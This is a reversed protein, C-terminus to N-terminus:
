HLSPVTKQETTTKLSDTCQGNQLMYSTSVDRVSGGCPHYHVHIQCSASFLATSPTPRGTARIRHGGGGGGGVGVLRHPPAPALQCAAPIYIYGWEDLLATQTSWGPQNSLFQSQNVQFLNAPQVAGGAGGGGRPKLNGPGLVWRLVEGAMDYDCSNIPPRWGDFSAHERRPRDDGDGAYCHGCCGLPSPAAAHPPLPCLTSRNKYGCCQRGGHQVVGPDKCTESDVVWSHAAYITFETKVKASLNAFQAAVGKMVSQYVWVDDTGSFLYVPKNALNSLSDISGNRARDALYGRRIGDVYDQWPISTNELHSGNSVFGSCTDGSDYLTNCGYPAAGIIGIGEVVASHAVLHNIAMSAGASFGSVSHAPITSLNVAGAVAVVALVALSTAVAQPATDAPVLGM